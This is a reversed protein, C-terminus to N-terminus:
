FTPVANFYVLLLNSSSECTCGLLILQGLWVWIMRLMLMLVDDIEFGVHEIVMPDNRPVDETLCPHEDSEGVKM